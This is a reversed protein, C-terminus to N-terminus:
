EGGALSKMEADLGKIKNLYEQRVTKMREVGEELVIIRGKLTENENQGGALERDLTAIRTEDDKSAKRKDAIEWDLRQIEKETAYKANQKEDRDSTAKAVRDELEVLEKTLSAVQEELRGHQSTNRQLELETTAIKQSLRQTDSLTRTLFELKAELISSLEENIQSLREDSSVSENAM